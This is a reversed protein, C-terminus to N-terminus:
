LVVGHYLFRSTDDRRLLQRVDFLKLVQSAQSTRCSAVSLGGTERSHQRVPSMRSGLNNEPAAIWNSVKWWCSQWSHSLEKPQVPVAMVMKRASWQTSAAQWM